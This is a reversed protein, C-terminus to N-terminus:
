RVPRRAWNSRAAAAEEATFRLSPDHGAHGDPAALRRIASRPASRAGSGFLNHGAPMAPWAKGEIRPAALRQCGPQHRAARSNRCSRCIVPCRFGYSAVFATPIGAVVPKSRSYRSPRLKRNCRGSSNEETGVEGLDWIKGAMAATEGDYRADISDCM